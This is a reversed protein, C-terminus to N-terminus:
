FYEGDQLSFSVDRKFNGKQKFEYNIAIVRLKCNFRKGWGKLRLACGFEDAAVLERDNSLKNWKKDDIKKFSGM